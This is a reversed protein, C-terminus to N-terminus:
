AVKGSTRTDSGLGMAGSSAGPFGGALNAAGPGWREVPSTSPVSIYTLIWGPYSPDSVEQLNSSTLPNPVESFRVDAGRAAQPVVYTVTPSNGHRSAFEQAIQRVRAQNLGDSVVVVFVSQGTATNVNTRSVEYGPGCMDPYGACDGSDTASASVSAGAPVESESGSACGTGILAALLLLIGAPATLPHLRRMLPMVRWPGAQKVTSQSENDPQQIRKFV